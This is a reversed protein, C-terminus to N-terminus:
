PICFGQPEILDNGPDKDGRDNTIMEEGGLCLSGGSCDSHLSCLGFCAWETGFPLCHGSLCDSGKSCQDGAALGAGRESATAVTTCRPELHAASGGTAPLCVEGSQCDQDLSCPAYSAPYPVCGGVGRYSDDGSGVGTGELRVYLLNPHCWLGPCDTQDLCAGFCVQNGGSHPVEVCLDSLCQSDHTCPTGGPLGETRASRCALFVDQADPSDVAPLCVQNGKCNGDGSCGGAVPVCSNVPVTIGDQVQFHVTGCTLGDGCDGGSQCAGYCFSGVGLKLCLGTSCDQHAACTRGTQVSGVPGACYTDLKGSDVQRLTCVEIGPCDSSRACGNDGFDDYHKICGALQFLGAALWFTCILPVAAAPLHRGSRSLPAFGAYAATLGPPGSAPGNQPSLTLM